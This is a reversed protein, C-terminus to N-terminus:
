DSKAMLQKQQQEFHKEMYLLSSFILWDRYYNKLFAKMMEEEKASPLLPLSPKKSKLHEPSENDMKKFLAEAHKKAFEGDELLENPDEGKCLSILQDFAEKSSCKLKYQLTWLIIQDGDNNYFRPIQHVSEALV